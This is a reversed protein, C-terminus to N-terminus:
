RGVQCKGFFEDGGVSGMDKFCIVICDQFYVSVASGFEYKAEPFVDGERAAVAARGASTVYRCMNAEFGDVPISTGPILLCKESLVDYDFDLRDNFIYIDDRQGDM